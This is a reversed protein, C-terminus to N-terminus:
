LRSPVSTVLQRKYVDLHTYSVATFPLYKVRKRESLKQYQPIPNNLSNGFEGISLMEWEKGDASGSLTYHTIVEDGEGSPTYRFGEMEAMQDLELTVPREAIVKRDRICM